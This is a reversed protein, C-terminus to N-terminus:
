KTFKNLEENVMYMDYMDIGDKILKSYTPNSKAYRYKLDQMSKRRSGQLLSLLVQKPDIYKM